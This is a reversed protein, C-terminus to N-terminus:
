QIKHGRLVFHLTEIRFLTLAFDQTNQSVTKDVERWFKLCVFLGCSFGDVQIPNNLQVLTYDPFLAGDGDVLSIALDQLSRVCQPTPMSDYYKIEKSNLCVMLCSWHYEGFIVPVFVHTVGEEAALDRLRDREDASMLKSKRRGTVKQAEIVQACKVGPYVQELREGFACIL